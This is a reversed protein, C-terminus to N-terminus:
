RSMRRSCHQRGRGHRLSSEGSIAFIATDRARHLGLDVVHVADTGHEARLWEALAPPLQADIWVHLVPAGPLEGGTEVPM